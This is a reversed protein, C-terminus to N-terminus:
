MRCWGRWQLYKCVEGLELCLLPNEVEDSGDSVGGTQQLLRRRRAGTAYSNLSDTFFFTYPKKLVEVSKVRTHIFVYGAFLSKKKKLNYMQCVKYLSFYILRNELLERSEILGCTSSTYRLEQRSILGGMSIFITFLM